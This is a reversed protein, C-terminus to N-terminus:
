ATRPHLTARSQGHADRVPMIASDHARVGSRRPRARLLSIPSQVGGSLRNESNGSRRSVARTRMGKASKATQIPEQHSASPQLANQATIINSHHRILAVGFSVTSAPRAAKNPRLRATGSARTLVASNAAEITSATNEEGRIREERM